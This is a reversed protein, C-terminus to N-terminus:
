PRAAAFHWNRALRGLPHFAGFFGISCLVLNQACQMQISVSLSYKTDHMVLYRAMLTKTM